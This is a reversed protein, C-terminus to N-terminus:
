GAKRAATRLKGSGSGDDQRPGLRGVLRRLLLLLGLLAVTLALAVFAVIDPGRRLEPTMRARNEAGWKRGAVAVVCTRLYLM